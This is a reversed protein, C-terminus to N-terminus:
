RGVRLKYSGTLPKKYSIGSDGEHNRGKPCDKMTSPSILISKAQKKVGEQGACGKKSGPTFFNAMSTLPANSPMNEILKLIKQSIENMMRRIENASKGPKGPCLSPMDLKTDEILKKVLIHYSIPHETEDDYMTGPTTHNGRHLQVSLHCAGSLSSPLFVLNKIANINYGLKELVPGKGSKKVGEASILHHAQMPIGKNRPHGKFNTKKKIHRLYKTDKKVNGIFSM